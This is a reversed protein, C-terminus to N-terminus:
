FQQHCIWLRSRTLSEEPITRHFHICKNYFFFWRKLHQSCRESQFLITTFNKYMTNIWVGGGVGLLATSTQFTQICLIWSNEKTKSIKLPSSDFPITKQQPLLHCSLLLFWNKSATILSIILIQSNCIM